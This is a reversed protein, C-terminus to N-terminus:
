NSVEEASQRSVNALKITADTRTKVEEDSLGQQYYILSANTYDLTSAGLAKAANNAKEAFVDMEDASKETVIRINNLSKDLDKVYGYAKNISNTITNFISSTIGWKVTNMMTTAMSDLLKNSQKLQVNTGLIAQAMRNYATAGANGYNVLDTKISKLTMGSKTLEQNFKTVNLTGLDSNFTKELIRDLQEATQGAQKLGQTLQDPKMSKVSNSIQQLESQLQNLGTKDITFGLAVDIRKNAM